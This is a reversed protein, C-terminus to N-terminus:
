RVRKHWEGEAAGKKKKAMVSRGDQSRTGKKEEDAEVDGKMM